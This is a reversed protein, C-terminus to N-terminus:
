HSTVTLHNEGQGGTEEVLLVSQWQKYSPGHRLQTIQTKKHITTDLVYQTISKNQKNEDKNGTERSQGNKSQGKPM